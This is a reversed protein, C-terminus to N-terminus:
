NKPVEATDVTQNNHLYCPYDAIFMPICTDRKYASEYEKLYTGLLPITLDYPLGIKLKRSTGGYPNGYPNCWNVNGGVTYSHEKKGV